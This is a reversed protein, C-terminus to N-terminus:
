RVEKRLSERGSSLRCGSRIYILDSTSKIQRIQHPECETIYSNDLKICKMQRKLLGHNYRIIIRPIIIYHLSHKGHVSYKVSIM